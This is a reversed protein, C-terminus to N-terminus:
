HFQTCMCSIHVSGEDCLCKNLAHLFSAEVFSPPPCSMGLTRDKCDVDIMVCGYRDGKCAFLDISLDIRSFHLARVVARGTAATDRVFQVGDAIRAKLNASQNFGFYKKALDVMAPDIDVGDICLAPFQQHLYTCLAGGGLGLVLVNTVKRHVKVFDRLTEVM